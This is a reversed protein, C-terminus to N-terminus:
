NAKKGVKRQPDYYKFALPNDSDKGEYRIKKIGQFFSQSGTTVKM